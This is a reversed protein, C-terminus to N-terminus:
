WPDFITPLLVGDSASCGKIASVFIGAFGAICSVSQGGGSRGPLAGGSCSQPGLAGVSVGWALTQSYAPSSQCSLPPSSSDVAPVSEVVPVPVTQESLPLSSLEVAPM